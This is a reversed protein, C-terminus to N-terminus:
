EEVWGPVADDGCVTVGTTWSTMAASICVDEVGNLGSLTLTFSQETEANFYTKILEDSYNFDRSTSMEDSSTWSVTVFLNVDNQSVGDKLLAHVASELEGFWFHFTVTGAEADYDKLIKEFQINAFLYGRETNIPLYANDAALSLHEAILRGKNETQTDIVDAGSFAVFYTATLTHGNLDLIRSEKEAGNNAFVVPNNMVVDSELKIDESGELLKAFDTVTYWDGNKTVACGDAVWNQAPNETVNSAPNYQYFSGGKVTVTGKATDNSNLTWVPTKCEFEGGNIIVEGGNKVYILDFHATDVEGDGNEGENTYTGGNITVKGGDAFIAIDWINNGEGNVTGNGNIILHGNQVVKFAGDGLTDEPLTISYNNLNLTITDDVVAATDLVVNGALAIEASSSAYKIANKLDTFAGGKIILNEEIEESVEIMGKIEGKTNVTVVPPEYSAYKCVDFAYADGGDNAIITTNGEISVKGSNNSLVYSYNYDKIVYRDLYTGDLTMDVVTLNAYNQILMAYDNQNVSSVQLKGNSLTVSNGKKIQFGLTETGTSGVAPTTFTYTYGGFNISIDKDIIVGSGEANRLLEVTQGAEAESVADALTTYYSEGVKAVNNDEAEEEAIVSLPLMALVTVLALFLGLIRVTQKRM